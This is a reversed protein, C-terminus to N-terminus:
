VSKLYRAIVALEAQLHTAQEHRGLREYEALAVRRSHAEADLINECEAESLIKRPVDGSHGYVAAPASALPVASGNDLAALLSRLTATAIMDRSKMADLLDSSLRARILTAANNM